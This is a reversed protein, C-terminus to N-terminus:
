LNVMTLLFTTEEIAMLSHKIKEHLTLLHDKIILASENETTLQLKGEIIYISVPGEARHMKMENGEHMAILVISMKPSKMLTMANHKGSIWEDEQKIREIVIPLDFSLMPANLIRAPEPRPHSPLIDIQGPAPTTFHEDMKKLINNLSEYYKQLIKINIESNEEDPITVPMEDLFKSLESNKGTNTPIRWLRPM